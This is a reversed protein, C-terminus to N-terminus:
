TRSPIQNGRKRLEDCVGRKSKAGSVCSVFQYVITVVCHTEHNGESLNETCKKARLVTPFIDHIGTTPKFSFPVRETGRTQAHM